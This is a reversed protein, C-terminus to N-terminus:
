WQIVMVLPNIVMLDGNNSTLDGNEWPNKRILLIALHTCDM